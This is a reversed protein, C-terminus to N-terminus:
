AHCHRPSSTPNNKCRATISHVMFEYSLFGWTEGCVNCESVSFSKWVSATEHCKLGSHTHQCRVSFLLLISTICLNVKVGAGSLMVESPFQMLCTRPPGIQLALKGPKAKVSERHVQVFSSFRKFLKNGVQPIAADTTVSPSSFVFLLCSVDSM